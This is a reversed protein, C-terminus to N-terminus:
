LNPSHHHILSDELVLGLRRAFVDFELARQEQWRKGFNEVGNSTLPSLIFGQWQWFLGMKAEKLCRDFVDLVIEKPNPNMLNPNPAAAVEEM